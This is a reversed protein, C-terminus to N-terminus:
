ESADTKGFERLDYLIDGLTFNTLGPLSFPAPSGEGIVRLFGFEEWEEAPAEQAFLILGPTVDHELLYDIVEKAHRKLSAYWGSYNPHNQIKVRKFENDISDKIDAKNM